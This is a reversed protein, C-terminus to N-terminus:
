DQKREESGFREAIRAKIESDSLGLNVAWLCESIAEAVEQRDKSFFVVVQSDWDGHLLTLQYRGEAKSPPYWGLDLVYDGPRTTWGSGTFHVREISLLDESYFLENRLRGDERVQDEDGFQNWVVAWGSPLAFRVLNEKVNNIM